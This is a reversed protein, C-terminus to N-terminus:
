PARFVPYVYSNGIRRAASKALSLLPFEFMDGNEALIKDEPPM